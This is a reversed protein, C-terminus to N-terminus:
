GFIWGVMRGDSGDSKVMRGDIRSTLTTGVRKGLTKLEVGRFHAISQM